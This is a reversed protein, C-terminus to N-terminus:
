FNAPKMSVVYLLSNKTGTGGVQIFLKRNLSIATLITAYTRDANDASLFYQMEAGAALAGCAAGSDNRVKLFLGSEANYPTTGTTVPTVGNCDVVAYASTVLLSMGVMIGFVSLLAKKLM